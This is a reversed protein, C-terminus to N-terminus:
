SRRTEPMRLVLTPVPAKRAVREAVGPALV